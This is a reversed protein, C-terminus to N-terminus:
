SPFKTSKVFVTFSLIITANGTYTLKLVGSLFIEEGQNTLTGEILVDDKVSIMDYLDDQVLPGQYRIEMVAGSEKKIDTIDFKM